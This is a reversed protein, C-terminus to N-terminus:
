TEKLPDDAVPTMGASNVQERLKQIVEKLEAMRVERGAMLNITKQLEANSRALEQEAQRRETIDRAAAFVGIVDGGEDRYVSANYLVPTIDGDRSRIELAYDQVVGEQFVQQYGARAKGPDTFYESFDTGILEERSCGIIVETAANVDTIKGEPDITMFPDLNAEILSRNYASARRLVEEAQKRETIDKFDEIVGILEGGAGRFPNVTLICPIRIGDTREIEVECEVHEEGGLIRTLPCDPTHCLDSSLVEYCKKGSSEDNGMGSITLFTQNMQLMKFDKDIVRMGDAATNFIQNLEAYAIKTARNAKAIQESLMAVVFAIVIFMLARLYDNATEVDLRFFIHSVILIAALFIAVVLGKRKWWLSALIIPIYFFHTFVTGRELVLHFYFILFCCISLLVSIILIRLGEQTLDKSAVLETIIKSMEVM